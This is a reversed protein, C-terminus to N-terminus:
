VWYNTGGVGEVRYGGEGWQYGNIKDRYRHTQKRKKTKNM